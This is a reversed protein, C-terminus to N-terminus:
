PALRKAFIDAAPRFYYEGAQSIRELGELHELPVKFIDVRFTTLASQGLVLFGVQSM